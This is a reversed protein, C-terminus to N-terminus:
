FHYPSCSARSGTITGHPNARLCPQWRGLPPRAVPPCRRRASPILLVFWLCGGILGIAFVVNM